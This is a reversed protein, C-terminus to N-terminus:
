QGPDVFIFYYVKVTASSNTSIQIVLNTADTGANVLGAKGSDTETVFNAWWKGSNGVEFLCFYGPIVSLGHAVNVTRGGSATSSISGELGIKLSNKESNFVQESLTTTSTSYGDKTVKIGYNAM